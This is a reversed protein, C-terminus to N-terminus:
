WAHQNWVTRAAAWSDSADEIVTIGTAGPRSYNNSALVIEAAGDADVDVVLPYEFLTGSAHDTWQLEVSGTAGDWVWLTEEDAYVVEAAGDGEFDFVSSGTQQSSYDQVANAWLETGDGDIVRYVSRSAVGIEPLGDGDFDAVTPPGGGGDSLTFTWRDSGDVNRVVVQGQGDTGIIEPSGDLDLDGVAPWLDPGDAQWRISGDVEYVTNGAVIEAAGDGDLDVAFSGRMPRGQGGTGTWRLTGDANILSAGLIVEAVGDGDVDAVSPHGYRYISTPALWRFAGDVGEVALLGKDSPVLVVPGGPGLDAIAVGAAGYPHAGGAQAVSWLQAGTSGDLAVLTGPNSYASAIFATFVVDPVDGDGIIGNGDDDNLHGVVPAAMIQHYGRHVSNDRWQWQVVPDFVGVIPEGRCTDVQEPAYEPPAFDICADPVDLSPRSRVNSESCAVLPVLLLLLRPM